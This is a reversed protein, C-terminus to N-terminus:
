LSIDKSRTNQLLDSQSSFFSVKWDKFKQYFIERVVSKSLNPYVDMDCFISQRYDHIYALGASYEIRIEIFMSIWPQSM